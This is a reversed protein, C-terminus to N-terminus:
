MVGGKLPASFQRHDTGTKEIGIDIESFQCMRNKDKCSYGPISQLTPQSTRTRYQTQGAVPYNSIGRRREDFANVSTSVDSLNGVLFLFCVFMLSVDGDINVTGKRLLVVSASRHVGASIELNMGLLAATV